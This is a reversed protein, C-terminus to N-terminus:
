RVKSVQLHELLVKLGKHDLVKLGQLQVLRGRLERFEQVVRLV